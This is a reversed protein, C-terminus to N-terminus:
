WIGVLDTKSLGSLIEVKGQSEWGTTIYQKEVKDGRKVYVFRKGKEDVKIARAPIQLAKEKKDAIITVQATMEPRLYGEYPTLIDLVTDYFVVNNRIIAGPYITRVKAEFIKDPFSDVRFRAPMGPKIKGIDTEDIYCHVELKSLDIVTIFTPANLGAVVTEGQQTSVESVYGNIPSYIFAYNLKVKSAEYQNKTSLVMAQTRKLEQNYEEELASLKALESALQNEKVEVDREIRELDNKSILGEQYLALLREKERKLQALDAKIASIVRKQAKINEPYTKKVKEHQTQAQLYEQYNKDVERQLDAHEIIAILQGAKVYDGQKVFLKEVRGSIRAGVKVQAGVQPKVAGTASIELFMPGEEVQVFKTPLAEEKKEGKKSCASTLFLIIILFLFFLRLKM